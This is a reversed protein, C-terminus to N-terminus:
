DAARVHEVDGAGVVELSGGVLLELRGDRDIGVAEGAVTRGDITSVVVSRGLTICRQSYAAALGAAAADGGTEIWHDLWHDVEKVISILLATRDAGTAGAIALSTATPVPLEAPQTSVNLGIGIVVADGATQALIGAVKGEEPRQLLDNPWKLGVPVGTAAAVADCLSVGALLPLWSWTAIPTPPRFLM